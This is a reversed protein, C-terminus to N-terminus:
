VNTAPWSAPPTACPTSTSRASVAAATSCPRTATSPRSMCPRPRSAHRDSTNPQVALLESGAAVAQGIVRSILDLGSLVSIMSSDETGTRRGDIRMLPEFTETLRAERLREDAIREEAIRLMRHLAVAPAVPELRDLDTVAPHLLGFDLLCPAEKADVGLVYGERLARAYLETGAACLNEVGHEPHPVPNM